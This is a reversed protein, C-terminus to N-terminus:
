PNLVRWAHRYHKTPALAHSWDDSLTLGRRAARADHQALADAFPQLAERLRTVEDCLDAVAVTARYLPSDALRPREGAIVRLILSGALDAGVNRQEDYVPDSQLRMLENDLRDLEARLRDNEVALRTLVCCDDAPDQESHVITM